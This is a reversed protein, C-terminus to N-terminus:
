GSADIRDHYRARYLLRPHAPDDTFASRDHLVNNCLLGMGPELTLHHIWPSPTALLRELAAVAARVDADAHWEISRTRATYRMHLQGTSADISFVPGSNAFTQKKYGGIAGGTGPQLVQDSSILATLDGSVDVQETGLRSYFLDLFHLSKIKVAKSFTLTLYEDKQLTVEDDKIGIGDGEFALEDSPKALGDYGKDAGTLIGNGKPLNYRIPTPNPILTWTVGDIVGSAGSADAYTAGTFTSIATFDIVAANAGLAGALFMASSLALSKITKSM